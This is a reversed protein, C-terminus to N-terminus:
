AGHPSRRVLLVAIAVIDAYSITPLIPAMDLDSVPVDEGGVARHYTEVARKRGRLEHVAVKRKIEAPDVALDFTDLELRAPDSDPSGPIYDVRGLKLKTAGDFSVRVGCLHQYLRDEDPFDDTEMLLLDRVRIGLGTRLVPEGPQVELWYRSNRYLNPALSFSEGSLLQPHNDPKGLLLSKAIPIATGADAQATPPGEGRFLYSLSVRPHTALRELLKGPPAQGQVVVRWIVPQPMGLERAMLAKNDKWVEDCLRAVRKSLEPSGGSERRGSKTKM